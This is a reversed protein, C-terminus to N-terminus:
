YKGQSNPISKVVVMEENGINMPPILCMVLGLSFTLFLLLGCLHISVQNCMKKKDKQCYIVYSITNLHINQQFLLTSFWSVWSNIEMHSDNVDMNMFHHDGQVKRVKKTLISVMQMKSETWEKTQRNNPNKAMKKLIGLIYKNM